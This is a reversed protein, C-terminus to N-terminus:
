VGIALNSKQCNEANARTHPLEPRISIAAVFARLTFASVPSTRVKLRPWQLAAAPHLDVKSSEFDAIVM